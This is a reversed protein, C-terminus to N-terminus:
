ALKEKLAQIEPGSGLKMTKQDMRLREQRSSIESSLGSVLEQLTRLFPAVLDNGGDSDCDLLENMADCAKCHQFDGAAVIEMEGIMERYADRREILLEILCDESYEGFLHDSVGHLTAAHEKAKAVENECTM